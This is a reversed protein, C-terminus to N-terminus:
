SSCIFKKLSKILKSTFTHIKKTALIIGDIIEPLFERIIIILLEKIIPDIPLHKIIIFICLMLLLYKKEEGHIGRVTDVKIMMNTIFKIWEIPNINKFDPTFGTQVLREIDEISSQYLSILKQELKQFQKETLEPFQKLFLETDEISLTRAM